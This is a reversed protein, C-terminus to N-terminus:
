QAAKKMILNVYYLGIGSATFNFAISCLRLYYYFGVSIHFLYGLESPYIWIALIYLITIFLIISAIVAHCIWMYEIIDISKKYVIVALVVFAMINSYSSVATGGALQFLAFGNYIDYPTNVDAPYFTVDYVFQSYSM